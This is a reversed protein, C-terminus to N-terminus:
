LERWKNRYAVARRVTTTYRRADGPAVARTGMALTGM